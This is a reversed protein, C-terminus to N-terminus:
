KLAFDWLRKSAGPENVLDFNEFVAIAQRRNKHDKFHGEKKYDKYHSISGIHGLM